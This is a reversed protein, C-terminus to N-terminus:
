SISEATLLEAPWENPKQPALSKYRRGEPRCSMQFVSASRPSWRDPLCHLLPQSQYVYHALIYANEHATVPNCCPKLFYLAGLKEFQVVVLGHKSEAPLPTKFSSLGEQRKENM